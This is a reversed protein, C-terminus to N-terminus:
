IGEKYGLFYSGSMKNTGIVNERENLPQKLTELLFYFISSAESKM